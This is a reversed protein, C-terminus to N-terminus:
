SFYILAEDGDKDSYTWLSQPFHQFVYATKSKLHVLKNSFFIYVITAFEELFSSKVEYFQIFM